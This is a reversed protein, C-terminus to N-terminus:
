KMTEDLQCIFNNTVKQASSKSLLTLLIISDSLSRLEIGRIIKFQYFLNGATFLAISSKM